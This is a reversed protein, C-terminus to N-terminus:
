ARSGCPLAEAHAFLSSHVANLRLSPSFPLFSDASSPPSALSGGANLSLMNHRRSKRAGRKRERESENEREGESERESENERERPCSGHLTKM